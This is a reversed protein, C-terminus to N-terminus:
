HLGKIKKEGSTCIDCMWRWIQCAIDCLALYVNVPLEVISM